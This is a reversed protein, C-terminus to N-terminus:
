ILKSVLYPGYFSSWLFRPWVRSLVHRMRMRRAASIRGLIAPLESLEELTVGVSFTSWDLEPHEGLPSAMPVKGQNYFTSTLMVPICGFLVAPVYRDTDGEFQGLPSYCFEADSMEEAFSRFLAKVDPPLPADPDEGMTNVIRFGTANAHPLLQARGSADGAGRVAHIRGGYFFLNARAAKGALHAEAAHQKAAPDHSWAARARLTALDYGCLPGCVNQATVLQIDKGRQFCVLCGAQGADAGDAM